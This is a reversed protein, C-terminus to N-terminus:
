SASGARNQGSEPTTEFAEGGVAGTAPQRDRGAGISSSLAALVMSYITVLGVVLPATATEFWILFQVSIASLGISLVVSVAVAVAWSKLEHRLVRALPSGAFLGLQLLALVGGVNNFGLLLLFVTFAGFLGIAWMHRNSTM